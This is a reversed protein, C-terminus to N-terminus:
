NKIIKPYTVKKVKRDVGPRLQKMSKKRWELTLAETKEFGPHNRFKPSFRRKAFARKFSLYRLGETSKVIEPVFSQIHPSSVSVIGLFVDLDVDQNEEISVEFEGDQASFSVGPADIKQDLQFGIASNLKSRVMGKVVEVSVWAKNGRETSTLNFDTLRIETNRALGIQM